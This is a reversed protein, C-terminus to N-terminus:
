RYLQAVGAINDGGMGKTVAVAFQARAATAVPVASGRADASQVLYRLDKEVLAVPFLPPYAAKAIQMAAGSLAPSMVPLTGMISLADASVGDRLLWGTLEAYAAVQVAFLANVALKLKTGDGTTGVHHVAAALPALVSSVRAVASAPGGVLFALQGAEAQPRSGVVPADLFHAGRDHVANALKIVWAPTLTSLELAVSTPSLGHAAGTDPALWVERSANDDTLSALVIDANVAADRPTPALQAGHARLPTAANPSRNWVTVTHGAALLRHAIRSGMAGLGLVAISHLPAPTTM